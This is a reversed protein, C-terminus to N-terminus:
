RLGPGRALLRNAAAAIAPADVGYHRYLDRRAGSQGFHDVGLPIQPVALAGGLFALGHSHGDQVSVVPVGEEDAGVLDLVHQYTTRLDRHLLDPSTVVFVSARIGDARLVRGAEVAEPVMVGTAFIHVADDDPDYGPEARADVLRYGGRLVAERYAPSPVPALSQDIPRTSLRLYLSEAADRRNMLRHLADLLIWEVEHAFTPEYYTLAPLAIGIGPTIVSQHAGGEPSLSVGSPTGAVIFRGGAYLAHYLADLGRTVFPDYLTGIPLLTAGSLEHTLGFAGLALFLNHEAIGLEIHQGAPSERWQVAQPGEGAFGPKPRPFYVGKRNIWGALHTTVAVDASLTVIRDGVPLRGLRGLVRGLAEQTSTQAPYAEELTEPVAPAPARGPPPAYPAPGRRILEAEASGAAFGVWTEGPAVGLATRLEELQGATLLAGHNMPDAAFPYGWGKITDAIIVCPGRRPRGAEAYAELISPLDHGGVDAVLAGVAEDPLDALLRDVVADTEGAAAATVAKRAAAPALRLLSQYEANGMGELRARLREGGPRGFLARLRRGWRLEIVHWGAGRFWDRLQGRRADPLIRDLSQRNLDVIWLLNDLERVAEELLAEWVNGEDLEADGVMAIYRRPMPEGGGHQSVYRAALAGFAASVAGLGMSGTSLDVIEPNKRRSPYAQLGGLTRLSELETAGLRGRLYEIAYLVPSAHAKTAVIDGPRLAHFYLATMLSVVSSSSAQHGGVKTGDPNPRSNAHHVVCASLWLVRKQISELTALDAAAQAPM